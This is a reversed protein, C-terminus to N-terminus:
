RKDKLCFSKNRPSAQRRKKLIEKYMVSLTLSIKKERCGEVDTKVKETSM